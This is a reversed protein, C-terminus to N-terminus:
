HRLKTLDEALAPLDHGNITAVVDYWRPNMGNPYMAGLIGGAISAVSDSDGGVNVALLIASDASQMVSALGLAVPVITLPRDPFYRPAIREARPEPWRRFDEATSRVATTFAPGSSRPWRAEASAAAEMALQLVEDASAGDLAASVAVATAAAGAIAFSGAHTSVSAERAGTVIQDLRRSSYFIGVPAVRIAAGCGDHGEAIRAPDNAQHFEWLSKAGPHVSKRCELLERGVGKHSVTHDTIIARAVAITCETDDTTEGIRWEHKANGVYRPIISGPEGEFGHVGSPYWRAVDQHSLGETQKGIADGTAIGRLCGLIRGTTALSMSGDLEPSGDLGPSLSRLPARARGRRAPM